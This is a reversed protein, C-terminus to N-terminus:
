EHKKKKINLVLGLFYTSFWHSTTIWDRFNRLVNMSFIQVTSHVHEYLKALLQETNNDQM